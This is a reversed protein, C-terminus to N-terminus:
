LLTFSHPDTAADPENRPGEEDADELPEKGDDVVPCSCILFCRHFFCSRQLEGYDDFTMSWLYLSTAMTLKPCRGKKRKPLDLIPEM